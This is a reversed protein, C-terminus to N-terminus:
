MIEFVEHVEVTGGGGLIPCGKAMDVAGALDGASLISYGNIGSSSGESVGSGTVTSSGGFPNGPDVVASGLGGFWGTWAAMSAEREADTEPMPGGGSYTLVFKAMTKSREFGDRGASRRDAEGEYRVLDAFDVRISDTAIGYAERM